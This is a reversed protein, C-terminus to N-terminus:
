NASIVGSIQVYTLMSKVKATIMLGKWNCQNRKKAKVEIKSIELREKFSYNRM